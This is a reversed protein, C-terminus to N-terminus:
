RNSEEVFGRGFLTRQDRFIELSTTGAVPSSGLFRRRSSECFASSFRMFVPAFQLKYNEALRLSIRNKRLNATQFQGSKLEDIVDAM